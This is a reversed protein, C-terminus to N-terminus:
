DDIIKIDEINVCQFEEEIKTLYGKKKYYNKRKYNMGNFVSFYDQIDVVLPHCSTRERLIRGVSQEVNSKPSALVLTNLRPNDYGESAMNYTGIIIDMQNTANLETLSMGGLYKGSEPLHNHLYNVHNRRHCLVLLIRNEKRLQKIIDIIFKNRDDHEAILNLMASINPKGNMMVEEKMPENPYFKEFVIEPSDTTQKIDVIIDGLFWNIVKSLGDARQLTASLGLSYDICMKFFVSSFMESPTHHVEDFVILGFGETIERPYNRICLSHIMGVCIPSDILMTDQQIIGADIGTFDKIKVVWQDLLTRTHVVILTKVQLQSAIWLALCTKGWGTFLSCVGSKHSKLHSLVKIAISEQYDRLKKHFPLIVKDYKHELVNDPIGYKEIAYFKPSYLYNKSKRFLKYEKSYEVNPNFPRVKLEKELVKARSDTLDIRFGKPTLTAM